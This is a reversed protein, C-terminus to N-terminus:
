SSISRLALSQMGLQAYCAEADAKKYTIAQGALPDNFIYNQDDFGILVLCHEGSLWTFWRGTPLLWGSGARLPQMNIGAWVLVPEGRCIYQECLASLSLGTTNEVQKTNGLYVSLAKEIVPAYCGYGEPTRPDGVYYYNPDPGCLTDNEDTYLPACPLYGDIFAGPTIGYGYFQLLMTASVAECGTPFAPNQGMYPVTLLTPDQHYDAASGVQWGSRACGCLLIALLSCVLFLAM